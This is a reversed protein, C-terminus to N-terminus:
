LKAETAGHASRSSAAGCPIVPLRLRPAHRPVFRNRQEQLALCLACLRAFGGEVSPLSSALGLVNCMLCRLASSRM